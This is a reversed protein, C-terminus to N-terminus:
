LFRVVPMLLRFSAIGTGNGDPRTASPGDGLAAVGGDAAEAQAHPPLAPRLPPNLGTLVEAGCRADSPTSEDTRVSRYSSCRQQRTPWSPGSTRRERRSCRLWTGLQDTGLGRSSSRQLLVSSRPGRVVPRLGRGEVGCGPRPRGRLGVRGPRWCHGVGGPFSARFRPVRCGVARAAAPVSEPRVPPERPRGRCSPPPM